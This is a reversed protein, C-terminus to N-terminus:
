RRIPVMRRFPEARAYATRVLPSDALTISGDPTRWVVQGWRNEMLLWIRRDRDMYAGHRTPPSESPSM